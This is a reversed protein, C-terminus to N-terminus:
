IPVWSQQRGLFTPRRTLWFPISVHWHPWAYFVDSTHPVTCEIAEVQSTLRIALYDKRKGSWNCLIWVLNFTFLYWLLSQFLPTHLHPNRVLRAYIHVVICYSPHATERKTLKPLERSSGLEAVRETARSDGDTIEPIEPEAEGATYTVIM